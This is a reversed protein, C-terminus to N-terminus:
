AILAASRVVYKMVVILTLTWLVISTAGIVDDTSPQSTFVSPWLYLPSTGAADFMCNNPLAECFETEQAQMDPLRRM